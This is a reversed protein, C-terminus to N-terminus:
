RALTRMFLVAQWRQEDSLTGKWGLMANRGTALKWFLAGDSQATVAADTFNTPKPVFYTGGPGDGKGEEGHSVACSGRYIQAGSNIAEPTKAVPNVVAAADAPVKWEAADAGAWCGILLIASSVAPYATLAM